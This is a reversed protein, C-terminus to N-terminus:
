MCLQRFISIPITQEWLYAFFLSASYFNANWADEPVNLGRFNIYVKDDYTRKKTKIYGNDCVWFFEIWYELDEIKTLITKYRELLKDDNIRM